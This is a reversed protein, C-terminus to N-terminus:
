PTVGERKCRGCRDATPGIRRECGPCTNPEPSPEEKGLTGLEPHPSATKPSPGSNQPNQANESGLAALNKNRAAKTGEPMEWLWRGADGVGGERRADVELDSKARRVTRWSLGATEAANKLESVPRAGAALEEQLFHAAEERATREEGTPRDLLESAAHETEGEWQVRVTGATPELRYSLASPRAALNCKTVALVRGPGEPDQPDRAALLGSRAAAILGISGGGRYLPHSGRSKNLHRIALVTVGTADALDALGALAARVDADRHTNVDQGMFATLPDLVLLAADKQEIADHIPGLDEVTPIREADGVDVTALRAVRTVDAGAADLRPRVTDGLGDEATLLVTGRPDELEPESGDPMPALRSLRAALDLALTSKGVDPDGDLLTLKGLPIRAPWLWRVEEPEVDALEVLGGQRASGGNRRHRLLHDLLLGDVM